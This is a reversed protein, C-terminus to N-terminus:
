EREDSRGLLYDTTVNFYDALIMLNTAPVNIRGYEIKQYHNPTCGLIEALESQKLKKENRLEKIRLSFMQMEEIKENIMAIGRSVDYFVTVM